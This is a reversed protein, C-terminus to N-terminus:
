RGRADRRIARAEAWAASIDEEIESPDITDPVRARIRSITEELQNVIDDRNMHGRLYDDVADRVITAVSEGRAAALQRLTRLQDEELYINTRRM